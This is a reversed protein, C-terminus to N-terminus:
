ADPTTLYGYALEAMEHAYTEADVQESWTPLRDPFLGRELFVTNYFMTITAVARDFDSRRVEARFAELVARFGALSQEELDRRRGLGPRLRTHVYAARFVHAGESVQRWVALSVKHLAERLSSSSLIEAGAGAEEVRAEIRAWSLELLVQTLGGAFRRYIAGPSVGAEAAVDAVSITEFDRTRLLRDLADLLGDRTKRSREQLAPRAGQDV